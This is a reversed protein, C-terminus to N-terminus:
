ECVVGAGVFFIKKSHLRSSKSCKKLGESLRYSRGFRLLERAFGRANLHKKQRFNGFGGLRWLTLVTLGKLIISYLISSSMGLYQGRLDGQNVTSGLNILLV